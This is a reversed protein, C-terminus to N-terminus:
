GITILITDSLAIPVAGCGGPALLDAAQVGVTLGLFAAATPIELVHSSGILGVDSAPGLRCPAPPCLLQNLQQFGLRVYPIGQVGDLHFSLTSGLEPSGTSQLTLSGCGTTVTTLTGLGTGPLATLEFSGQTGNKGGVRLLCAQGQQLPVTLRSNTGCADDNCGLSVLNACTGTFVELVTDLTGAGCTSFTHPASATATFRFWVDSGGGGCPFAPASSTSGVNSYPGNTGLDIAAGAQCLDGPIPSGTPLGSVARIANQLATKTITTGANGSGGCGGATHIAIAHGVPGDEFVPSGSNGRCTDILYRLSDPDVATLRGTHTQQIQNRVGTGDTPRCTCNNNGGPAGDTDSGDIGFGTVRAITNVPPITTALAIQAGMTEYTSLGTNPNHFCRFAAYDNGVGLNVSRMTGTDIAFQYDPHPHVLSCNANSSPISFAITTSRPFCHGASLHCKNNSTTPQNTIWGTCGTNTRGIAPHSGPIRDDTAGCISELVTMTAPDDGVWLRDIVLQNDITGPGAELQVLVANGNFFASGHGWQEVHEQRLRQEAGDRLAVLRVLSGPPLHTREFFVRLWPSAPPAVVIQQWVVAAIPTVNARRGSDLRQHEWHGNEPPLQALGTTGAVLVLIPSAFRRVASRSALM